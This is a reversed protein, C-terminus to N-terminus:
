TDVGCLCVGLMGGEGGEGGEWVGVCWEEGGFFEWLVHVIGKWRLHRLNFRFIVFTGEWLDGKGGSEM